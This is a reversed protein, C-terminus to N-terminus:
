IRRHRSTAAHVTSFHLVPVCCMLMTLSTAESKTVGPGATPVPAPAASADAVVHCRRRRTDVPRVQQRQSPQM